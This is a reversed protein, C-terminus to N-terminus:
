IVCLQETQDLLDNVGWAVGQMIHTDPINTIRYSLEGSGAKLLVDRIQRILEDNFIKNCADGGGAALLLTEVGLALVIGGGIMQGLIFLYIAIGFVLLYLALTQRTSYISSLLTM